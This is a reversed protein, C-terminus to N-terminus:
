KAGGNISSRHFSWKEILLRMFIYNTALSFPTCIVKGALELNISIIGEVPVLLQAILRILLSFLIISCLQYLLYIFFKMGKSKVCVELFVKRTAAFFVFTVSLSASTINGWFANVDFREILLSFLLFDLLWGVGSM